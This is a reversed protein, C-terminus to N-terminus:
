YDSLGLIEKIESEDLSFPHNGLREANLANLFDHVSVDNSVLLDELNIELSHKEFVMELWESFDGPWNAAELPLASIKMLTGSLLQGGSGESTLFVVHKWFYRLLIAVAYGHAIGIRATLFYSLAHPATTKGINMADGIKNAGAVFRQTKRDSVGNV